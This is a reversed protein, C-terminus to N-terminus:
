RACTVDVPFGTLFIAPFGADSDRPSPLAAARTRLIMRTCGIGGHLYSGEHVSVLTETGVNPGKRTRRRTSRHLRYFSSCRFEESVRVPRRPRLPTIKLLDVRRQRSFRTPTQSRANRPTTSVPEIRMPFENLTGSSSEKRRAYSQM